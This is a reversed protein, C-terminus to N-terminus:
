PTKKKVKKKKKKKKIREIGPEVRNPFKNVWSKTDDQSLVMVGSVAVSELDEETTEVRKHALLDPRLLKQNSGSDCYANQIHTRSRKLLKLGLGCDVDKLESNQKSPVTDKIQCSLFEDLKSGVYKQFQPTVELESIVASKDETQKERRLSKFSSDPKPSPKAIRKNRELIKKTNLYLTKPDDHEVENQTIQLGESNDLHTLPHCATDSDDHSQITQKSEQYYYNDKLTESDVAERLRGLAEEDDESSSSDSDGDVKFQTM